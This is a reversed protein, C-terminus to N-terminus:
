VDLAVIIPPNRPEYMQDLVAANVYVTDYREEIGYAEHVHGCVFLKPKIFQVVDRLKECGVYDNNYPVYDGIYACPGHTVIISSDIPIKKWVENIEDGRYKNFGWRDGHFWPTIPSGWIKLGMIEVSSNELYIFNSNEENVHFEKFIEPLWTSAHTLDEFKPDFCIDHNGCIFIRYTCQVQKSYWNLFNYIDKKDGRGSMDGAFIAIDCEPLIIHSHMNHTDSFNIIKLQM